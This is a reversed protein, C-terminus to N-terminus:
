RSGLVVHTALNAVRLEPTTSDEPEYTGLDWALSCLESCWDGPLGAPIPGECFACCRPADEAFKLPLVSAAM